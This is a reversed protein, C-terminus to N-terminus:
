NADECTQCDNYAVSASNIHIGEAHHESTVTYCENHNNELTLYYTKGVELETDHMHVHHTHGNSCRQVNYGYWVGSLVEGSTRGIGQAWLSGDCCDVHYTNSDKCLCGRKANKPSTRSPTKENRKM